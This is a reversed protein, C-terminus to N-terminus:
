TFSVEVTYSQGDALNVTLTGCRGSWAKPTKWTFKYQM